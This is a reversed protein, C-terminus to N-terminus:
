PAATAGQPIIPFPGGPVRGSLPVPPPSERVLSAQGIRPCNRGIVLSNTKVIQPLDIDIVLSALFPLLPCADRSFIISAARLSNPELPNWAVVVASSVASDPTPM